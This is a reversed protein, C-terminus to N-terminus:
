PYRFTKRQALLPGAFLTSLIAGALRESGGIEPMGCKEEDAKRWAEREQRM